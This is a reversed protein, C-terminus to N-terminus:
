RLKRTRMRRWREPVNLSLAWGVLGCWLSTLAVGALFNQPIPAAAVGFPAEALSRGLPVLAAVLAGMGAWTLPSRAAVRAAAWRAVLSALSWAIGGPGVLPQLLLDMALGLAVGFLFPHEYKRDLSFGVVWAAPLLVVAGWSPMGPLVLMRQAVLTLVILIATKM